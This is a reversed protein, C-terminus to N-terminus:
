CTAINRQCKSWITSGTINRLHHQRHYKETKKKTLIGTINRLQKKQTLVDLTCHTHCFYMTGQAQVFKFIPSKLNELHGLKVMDCEAWYSFMSRIITCLYYWSYIILDRRLSACRFTFAQVLAHLPQAVCQLVLFLCKGFIWCCCKASIMIIGPPLINESM